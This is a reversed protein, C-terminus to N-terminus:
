CPRVRLQNFLKEPDGFYGIQRCVEAVEDVEIMNNGNSDFVSMSNALDGAM